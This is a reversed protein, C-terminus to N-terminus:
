SRAHERIATFSKTLGLFKENEIAADPFLAAFQRRDILHCFQVTSVADHLTDSKDFFGLRNAMLRRYRIQEPLWQFGIRRFHPEIPFWFNPTQVYYNPALRRANAAFNQMNRWDGVHELVSNSHVLDFTNEGHGTLATADGLENVFIEPVTLPAPEINIMVIKINKGRLQDLVMHWYNQTGGHDAIRCSSKERVIREIIPMLRAFRVRRFRAEPANEDDYLDIRNPNQLNMYRSIFSLLGSAGRATPMSFENPGASANDFWTLRM